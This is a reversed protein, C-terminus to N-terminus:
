PGHCDLDATRELYKSEAYKKKLTAVAACAGAHDGRAERTRALEYVADDRLISAPFLGPLAAFTNEAAALDALADRQIRGLELQADDLWISFYSGAGLAVERTELLAQLRTAAGAHDGQARSLRAAHWRSDDRLGSEPYDTPIRDYYSRATGPDALEHEALDALAWLLNDAVGSGGLPTLLTALEDGLARPDRGRGDTVLAAVADGAYAEDPFDTITKWLLTWGTREDGSALALAGAKYLGHAATPPDIGPRDVFGAFAAIAAATQGSAELLHAEGLLAQSCALTARRPPTLRRCSTQATRYAALAGDTDGARERQEATVLDPLTAPASCAVLALALLARGGPGRM